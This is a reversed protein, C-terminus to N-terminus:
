QKNIQKKNEVDENFFNVAGAYLREMIGPKNNKKSHQVVEPAKVGAQEQQIMENRQSEGFGKMVLGVGTAYLPHSLDYDGQALHENPYGVRTDM